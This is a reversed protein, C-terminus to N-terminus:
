YATHHPNIVQFFTKFVIVLDQWLSWNEVYAIDRKVRELIESDTRAEGRHGSVQAMGTIGPKIFARVRYSAMIEQFRRNHVIMHPRPGVVSMEGRLVNIFQPIEDLSTKRLWRGFLYVREDNRTAQRAPSNNTAAMTRFKIIRFPKGSRGSRTQLFFLPGPSQRRQFVAVVLALPPLVLSVVLGSIMIDMARKMLRNVPDELPEEIVSILDLGSLNFHSVRRNFIEALNNILLLRSGLRNCVAVIESLHELKAPLELLVVQSVGERRVIRELNRLGLPNLGYSSEGNGGFGQFFCSAELGLNSMQYYWNEIREAKAIPGVFLTKQMHGSSFFIRVLMTPVFRHCFFLVMYLLPLFSFLFLRSIRLDKTAVLVLLITAGASSADRLAASHNSYVDSRLLQQSKTGSNLARVALACIAALYYTVYREYTLGLTPHVLFGLVLLYLWYVGSVVIVLVSYYARNLGRMRHWLM